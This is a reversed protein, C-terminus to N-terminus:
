CIRSFCFSLLLFLNNHITVNMESIDKLVVEQRHFTKNCTHLLDYVSKLGLKLKKM